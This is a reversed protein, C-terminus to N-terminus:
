LALNKGAKFRAVNKAPINIAEGTSPNKGVRANRKSVSFTGLGIISIKNGNKLEAVTTDIFADLAKRADNKTLGAKEAMANILETKNM